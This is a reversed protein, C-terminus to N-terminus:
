KLILPLYTTCIQDNQREYAGMDEGSGVPRPNGDFDETIGLNLGADIAPSTCLLHADLLSVFQPDKSISDAGASTGYYDSYGNGWVDNNKNQSADLADAHIGIFSNSTIINNDIMPDSGNFVAIGSGAYNLWISNNLILPDSNDVYIGSGNNGGILNNEIIPSSGTDVYIAADYSGGYGNLSFANRTINGVSNNYYIGRYKNGSFNNQSLDVDANLAAIGAEINNSIDSDSITGGIRGNPGSGGNM